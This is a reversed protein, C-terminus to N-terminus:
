PLCAIVGAIYVDSTTAGAYSPTKGGADNNNTFCPFPGNLSSGGGGSTCRTTCRYWGGGLDDITASVLNATTGVVGTQLNFNGYRTAGFTVTAWGIQVTSPATGGAGKKFYVIGLYDTAAAWTATQPLFHPQTTATEAVTDAITQGDPGAITDATATVDSKTWAANDMASPFSFLNAKYTTFTASSVVTSQQASGNEHMFHMTYTTNATLTSAPVLKQGTSAVAVSGAFKAASGGNDQGAKVQAASPPTASATAVWYLTGNATDTTVRGRATTDLIQTADQSSLSPAVSGSGTTWNWTTKLSIGAFFNGALDKISTAGILVYYDTTSALDATPNITLTDTTISIAGAIDAATFDQIHSDDSGKYLGIVVATNFAVSESFQVTLNNTLSVGTANDLPTLASITPATTDVKHSANDAVSSHTITANILGTATDKITGSNLALANSGISIGNTDTDGGAITYSFVLTTGPSGSTYAATKNSGGVNLTLQPAGTVTVSASFTVTAQVVDGAAYTNDAGASSTLAVSSITPATPTAFSSSASVTSKLPVANEQMFYFYYTTGGTLGTASVTNTGLTAAASGAFAAAAGANDQGAKVQTNSPPTASTTVVAYMTGSAQNTSVTGTATTAGTQTGTPATLTAATDLVDGVNITLFLTLIPDVGNNATITLSYSTTTEYDLAGALVLTATSISFKGAGNGATIAYTYTGSGGTVSFTGLSSSTATDEPVTASGGFVVQPGNSGVIVRYYDFKFGLM